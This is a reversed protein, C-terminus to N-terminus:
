ALLSRATLDGMASSELSVAGNDILDGLSADGDNGVPADLSSPRHCTLVRRVQAVPLGVADSVAREDACAGRALLLDRTAVIEPRNEFEAHSLGPYDNSKVTRLVEAKIRKYAWSSFSGKDPDFTDIASMLGLMGAAEFDATDEHSARATFPRVYKIVLGRNAGVLEANLAELKRRARVLVLRLGDEGAEQRVELDCVAAVAEQRQRFLQTNRAHAPPATTTKTM